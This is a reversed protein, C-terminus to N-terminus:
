RGDRYVYLLLGLPDGIRLKLSQEDPGAGPLTKVDNYLHCNLCSADSARVPIAVVNWDRVGFDYRDSKQFAQMAKLGRERLELATPFHPARENGSIIIPGRIPKGTSAAAETADSASKLSNRGALYLGVSLRARTLDGVISLEKANEPNFRHPSDGRRVIRRYGFGKDIDLFRKQICDDLALILDRGSDLHEQARVSSVDLLFGYTMVCIGVLMCVTAVSRKM